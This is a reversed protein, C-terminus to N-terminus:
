VFININRSHMRGGVGSRSGLGLCDFFFDFDLTFSSNRQLGRSLVSKVIIEKTVLVLFFEHLMM